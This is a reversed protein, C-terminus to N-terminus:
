SPDFVHLGPIWTFDALNRTALDHGHVLATATILSDGLKMRRQRGLRIAEDEVPLTIPLVDAAAFFVLLKAEEPVTLGHFGLAEVRTASSVARRTVGFWALVRPYAPDAAHILLNTDVLVM